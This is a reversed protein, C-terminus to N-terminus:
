PWDLRDVEALFEQRSVVGAESPQVWLEYTM